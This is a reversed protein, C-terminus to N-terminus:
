KKLEQWLRRMDDPEAIKIEVQQTAFPDPFALYYCNLAQRTFNDAVGYLPDGFLPHGISQMHVRIQHTRGTFLRLEVLSAGPVQELVRYETAAPQGAPDVQRVVTGAKQSIPAKIMGTLKNEAFNGHVVAHYKKVFDNKSLKAFRAHAIPNKGILVLGSTDRDLRTIVHPKTIEKDQAFYGLARNVLADDDEYRSPISLVGAPKNVVLYNATEKIINLPKNSPRLWPNAKEQGPVFIIEDGRHLQYSTYRRKHNVLILGDHNKANNVAQKSFGNNMLFAGLKKPSNSTFKLKFLTM